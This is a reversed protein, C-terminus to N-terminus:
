YEKMTEKFREAISIASCTKGVGVGHYVLIGNYPTDVSIYNRLFEQQPMLKFETPNCIQHATRTEVPIKYKNFEKKAYIDHYFNDSSLEPYYMFKKPNKEKKVIKSKKVRKM